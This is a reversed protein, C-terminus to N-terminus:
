WSPTKSRGEGDNKGDPVTALGAPSVMRSEIWPVQMQLHRDRKKLYGLGLGAARWGVEEM